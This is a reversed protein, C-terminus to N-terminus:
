KQHSGRLLAKKDLLQLQKRKFFGKAYKISKLNLVKERNQELVKYDMEKIEKLLSSGPITHEDIISEGHFGTLVGIGQDCNITFFHLDARCNVLYYAVKWVDGNWPGGDQIETQKRSSPNCDHIFIVGNTQIHREINLVDMLAQRFEHLGDVFAVDIMGNRFLDKADEAFFQDSGKEYFLENPRLRMFEPFRMPDVAFKRSCSIRRFNAGRRVGIELYTTNNPLIDVASQIWYDRHKERNKVGAKYALFRLVQITLGRFGIGKSKM